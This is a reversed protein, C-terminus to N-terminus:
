LRRQGQSVITLVGSLNNVGIQYTGPVAASSPTFTFGVQKVEGPALTVTQTAPWWGSLVVNLSGSTGGNNTATVTVTVLTVMPAPNPSITLNSLVINAPTATSIIKLTGSLENVGIQYNGPTAATSPTFTFTVVKSEGAALSVTQTAPWWGTLSVDKTGAATGNNTATVTVTIKTSMPAPNPSITLNSLVINAAGSVPATVVLQASLEDCTVTYTGAQSATATFRVVQIAGADLTITQQGTLAGGLTITKSGPATGNNTATVSVTVQDGVNAPSPSVVMNSLVINAVGNVPPAVVTFTPPEKTGYWNDYVEMRVYQKGTIVKGDLTDGVLNELYQKFTTTSYSSSWYTWNNYIKCSIAPVGRIGVSIDSTSMFTNHHILLTGGAPCDVSPPDPNGWSYSDNGGHCDFCSNTSNPGVINYRAEYNSTPYGRTGMISHRNYDFSNAEILASGGSVAVGYGYGTRQCNHIYNHHIWPTAGGSPTNNVLVGAEVWNYIECNDIQVYGSCCLGSYFYQLSSTGVDGDPGRLRLGTVRVGVGLTMFEPYGSSSRDNTYILGGASGDRGRGSALIVGAPVAIRKSGTMDIQASDAVYIIQGSTASALASLLQSKTSVVYKATSSDIIHTYGVGGGIPNGTPNADAGYAPVVTEAGQAPSAQVFSTAGLLLILVMMALSVKMICKRVVIRYRWRTKYTTGGPSEKTEGM